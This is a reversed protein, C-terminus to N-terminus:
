SKPARLDVDNFNCNFNFHNPEGMILICYTISKTTTTSARLREKTFIAARHLLAAMINEDRPKKKKKREKKGRTIEATASQIDNWKLYAVFPWVAVLISSFRMYFVTGYKWVNHPRLAFKSHLDSVHQLRSAPFVPRLFDGFIRWRRVIRKPWIKAWSLCM